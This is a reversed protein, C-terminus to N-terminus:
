FVFCVVFFGVEFLELWITTECAYVVPLNLLQVIPYNNIILHFMQFIKMRTKLNLLSLLFFLLLPQDQQRLPLLPLLPPLPLPPVNLTLKHFYMTIETLYKQKKMERFINWYPVLGEEVMQKLKLTRIMSPDMDYFFDFAVKFLRFGEELSDLTMKKEPATEEEDDPEPKSVRRWWTM